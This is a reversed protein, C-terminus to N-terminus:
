PVATKKEQEFREREAELQKAKIDLSAQFQLLSEKQRNMEAFFKQREAQFAAKQAELESSSELGVSGKNDVPLIPGPTDSVAPQVAGSPSAVSIGSAKMKTFIEEKLKELQDEKERIMQIQQERVAEWEAKLNDLESKPAAPEEKGAVLEPDNDAFAIFPFLVMATLIGLPFLKKIKLRKVKAKRHM